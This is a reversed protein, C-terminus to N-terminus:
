FHYSLEGGWTRPQGYFRNLTGLIQVPIPFVNNFYVSDTLNTAWLAVQFADSGFDYSLRANVLSYSSSTAGPIETGYNVVSGQYSWDVRPTLWGRLWEPGPPEVQLSYQVGLHIQTEPVFPLRDGARDIPEGTVLNEALYRDFKADLLGVSGDIALGDIPLANIELEIGKITSEGANTTIVAVQPICDPNDPPCPEAFVTPLQMDSYDAYFLAISARLRRDFTITKFGLEYSDVAEPDFTSAEAPNDSRAGGNIGGAKFGQAYTFYGLLHEIPADGLWEEPMTLAISGMPTWADYDKKVDKFAARIANPNDASCPPDSGDECLRLNTVLRSLERNERTYRLGGTISLWDTADVTAQGFFAWSMNDTDILNNTGGGNLAGVIGSLPFVDIDANTHVEEKFFYGGVVGAVRGDWANFNEQLEASFQQASAPEGNFTGEGGVEGFVFLREPGLDVDAREGWSQKRWSGLVKTQTDEFIWADGTDWALTGWSGWSTTEQIAGLESEFRYPASREPDQCYDYYTPTVSGPVNIFISEQIYQCQGGRGKSRQTSWSGMVDMTVTTTPEFRVSGLFSLDERNNWYEDRFANYTFGELNSSGFSLRTALKDELWGSGIPLNLMARTEVTGFTGARVRVDASLEQDPKQTIVNVAGGVTNKGFLTGQPGRLVELSAIDVLELVSGQARSLYVGDVYLGVGQDLFVDPRAGIGRILISADRGTRNDLIVLNPVFGELQDLQMIQRDQLTSQDFVTISIPTDELLEARKRAQVVIEEVQRAESPSLGAAAVGEQQVAEAQAEPADIEADLGGVPPSEDVVRQMEAGSGETPTEQAGAWPPAGVLVSIMLSLLVRLCAHRSVKARTSKKM